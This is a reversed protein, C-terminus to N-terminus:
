PSGAELRTVLLEVTINNMDKCVTARTIEHFNVLLQAAPFLFERSDVGSYSYYCKKWIDKVDPFIQISHM